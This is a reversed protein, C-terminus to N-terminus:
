GACDEDVYQGLVSKINAIIRNLEAVETYLENVEHRLAQLIQDNNM